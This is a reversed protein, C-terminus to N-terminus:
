SSLFSSQFMKPGHLSVSITIIGHHGRNIKVFLSASTFQRFYYTYMSSFQFIYSKQVKLQSIHINYENKWYIYYMLYM